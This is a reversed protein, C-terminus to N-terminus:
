GSYLITPLRMSLSPPNETNTLSFPLIDSIKLPELFFGSGKLTREM